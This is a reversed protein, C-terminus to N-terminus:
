EPLVLTDATHIAVTIAEGTIPTTGLEDHNASRHLVVEQGGALRIYIHVSEGRYIIDTVTGSLVNYGDGGDVNPHLKQPRLVLCGKGDALRTTASPTLPKQGDLHALGNKITVELIQSEGIFGAVFRNVPHEYIEKPTGIQEIRGKDIVAIRDSMVLAEQQDHTVAITTIGLLEHLRRIEIQMEERLAKDLASMPEDMLLVQPEFVIARALAVRQRQGGSLQDVRREMLGTLKVLDIVKGVRQKIEARPTKRLRLPYAVNEFVNMHPFLAHSQFVVGLNRKHPEARVMEKGNFRVSGASPRTFGAIAMLLTTKGSGSPGLLTLFEGGPIDLDLNDLVPLRGYHKCLGRVTIATGVMQDMTM